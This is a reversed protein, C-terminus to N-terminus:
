CRLVLPASAASVHINPSTRFRGECRHSSLKIARLFGEAEKRATSAHCRVAGHTVAVTGEEDSDGEAESSVDLLGPALFLLRRPGATDTVLILALWAVFARLAITVPLPRSQTLSNLM